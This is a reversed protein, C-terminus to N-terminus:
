SSNCVHQRHMCYLHQVPGRRQLGLIDKALKCRATAIIKDLSFSPRFEWRRPDDKDSAGFTPSCLLAFFTSRGENCDSEHTSPGSGGFYSRQQNEDDFLTSFKSAIDWEDPHVRHHPREQSSVVFLFQSLLILDFRSMQECSQNSAQELFKMGIKENLAQCMEMCTKKCKPNEKKLPGPSELVVVVGIMIVVVQKWISSEEFSSVNM